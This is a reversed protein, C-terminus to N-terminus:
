ALVYLALLQATVFVLQNEWSCCVLFKDRVKVVYVSLYSGQLITLQLYSKTQEMESFERDKTVTHLTRLATQTTLTCATYM